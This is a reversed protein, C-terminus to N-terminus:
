AEKHTKAYALCIDKVGELNQFISKVQKQFANYAVVAPIAVLLGVATAVLAKSIGIMVATADGQSLALSRFADMIGFVTGLLGIFPANSGVTALFNLFRELRPRETAAFSDFLEELGSDGHDKVHRLGFSLARGELSEWDRGLMEIQSLDSSQIIERLRKGTADSKSKIQRLAMFRELIFGISLVSLILLIYLTLNHGPEAIAYFQDTLM